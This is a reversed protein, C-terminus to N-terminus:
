LADATERAVALREELFQFHESPAGNLLCGAQDLHAQAGTLEQSILLVEALNLHALAAEPFRDAAFTAVALADNPREARYLLNLTLQSCSAVSLQFPPDDAALASDATALVEDMAAGAALMRGLAIHGPPSLNPLDAGNLFGLLQSGLITPDFDDSVNALVVVGHGTEPVLLLHGSFGNLSWSVEYVLHGNHEAMEWGYGRYRGPATQYHPVLLPQLVAADIQENLVQQMWHVVDSLSSHFGFSGANERTYPYFAEEGLAYTLWNSVRHPRVLASSDFGLPSFASRTLGYTAFLEAAALAELRQGTVQELLDAAVDYNYPSRKCRTGPQFAVEQYVISRTTAELADAEFTPMDWAPNFHPIGSTHTLLHHITMQPYPGDMQFYPLRMVVPDSVSLRQQRQLELVLSALMVESAPGMFFVSSDTLAAGTQQNMVGHCSRLVTDPTIIAVALGPIPHMQQYDSLFNQVKYYDPELSPRHCGCLWVVLLGLCYVSRFM